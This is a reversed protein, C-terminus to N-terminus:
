RIVPRVDSRIVAHLLSAVIATRKDITRIALISVKTCRVARRAYGHDQVTTFRRCWLRAAGPCSREYRGVANASPTHPLALVCYRAIAKDDKGPLAATVDLKMDLRSAINHTAKSEVSRRVTIGSRLPVTHPRAVFVAFDFFRERWVVHKVHCM